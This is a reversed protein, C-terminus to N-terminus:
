AAGLLQLQTFRARVKEDLRPDELACAVIADLMTRMQVGHARARGAVADFHEGSLQVPRTTPSRPKYRKEKARLVERLQRPSLDFELALQELNNGRFRARIESNRAERVLGTWFAAPTPVHPKMGGLHELVANLRDVGIRHGLAVFESFEDDFRELLEAQRAPPPMQLNERKM